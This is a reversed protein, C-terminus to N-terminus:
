WGSTYGQRHAQEILRDRDRERRGLDKRLYRLRQEAIKRVEASTNSDKIEKHLQEVENDILKLEEEMAYVDKGLYYAPLFTREASAWCQNKYADGNRGLQFARHPVCFSNLGERYGADYARADIGYGHKTCAREHQELRDPTHGARGDQVGISHWNSRACESETLTACGTLLLVSLALVFLHVPRIAYAHQDQLLAKNTRM